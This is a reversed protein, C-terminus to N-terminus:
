IELGLKACIGKYCAYASSWCWQFNYGGLQGTVDLVEGIAYLGPVHNFEMTKSSVLETNIGGLMVEAKDYGNDELALFEHEQIFQCLLEIQANSLQAIQLKFLPQIKKVIHTTLKNHAQVKEWLEVLSSPLIKHLLNKVLAKASISIEVQANATQTYDADGEVTYQAFSFNLKGQQRIQALLDGLDLQPLFNLYVKEGPQWYNSIQLVAPGSIGQHTFLLNHTFSKSKSANSARVFVSCGMIQKYFSNEGCYALPVLGPREPLYPAKDTQKLIALDKYWTSVQLRPYALSGSAIVALPSSYKNQRQDVLIINNEEQYLDSIATQWHWNVQAQSYLANTEIKELLYNVIAKAGQATFYKQEEKVQMEIQAQSFQAIIDWNTLGKLASIAFFRNNSLYNEKDVELNTFNCFGGGSILIKRGPKKGLDFINIQLKHQALLHALFLGSAGAGIINVSTLSM